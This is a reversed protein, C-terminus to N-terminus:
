QNPDHTHRGRDESSIFCQSGAPYFSYSRCTFARNAHCLQQCQKEDSVNSLSLDMYRPYMNEVTQHACNSSATWVHIVREFHGEVSFRDRSRGQTVCQNELYEINISADIYIDPRLRRDMSSLRCDFTKLNYEASRCLFRTEQLCAEQCDRRSAVLPIVRDDFGRLEKGPHREFAWAQDRCAEV